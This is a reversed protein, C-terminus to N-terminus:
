ADDDDEPHPGAAAYAAYVDPHIRGHVGVEVGNARAWARVRAAPPRRIPVVVLQSARRRRALAAEEEAIEAEVRRKLERLDDLRSM